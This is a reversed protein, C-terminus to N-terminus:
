MTVVLLGNGFSRQNGCDLNKSPSVGLIRCYRKYFGNRDQVRNDNGHGCELGGNIINTIVDFGPLRNAAQDANSPQWRGIIVDHCSPKPSQPTMWFWIASKFLIVSDTAILDPNNLLDVGISRGCPGYDYNHSIQIPGRGFYKRGPACPWQSSPTCYDGPCGLLKIPPKPLSLLLKGKVALPIVLPALALFLNLLLALPMIVIYIIREKVLMITAIILCINLCPIHSSVALTGLLIPAIVVSARAIAPLMIPMLIVVGAM